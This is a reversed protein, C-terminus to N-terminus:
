FIRLPHSSGGRPLVRGSYRRAFQGAGEVQQTREYGARLLLETLAGLDAKGGVTLTVTLSKLVERPLCRQMLGDVTAVTVAPNEAGLRYLAGLRRHEWQRSMVAARFQLERSLLLVPEEHTLLHLDLALRRAEKEDACVAVLPRGAAQHLAAAIQSRHVPSLGTLAVPSDGSELHAATERVESLTNLEKLLGEM